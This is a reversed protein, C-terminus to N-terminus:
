FKLNLRELRNIVENLVDINVVMSLRIFGDGNTGFMAGPAVVIHAENLLLEAFETSSYGIAVKAWIYFTGGPKSIMWKLRKKCNEIFFDIRSEYLDALDRVYQQPSDLAVKAAYQIGGFIGMFAHDQFLNISSILKRNGVAFAVRWGAMNYNKSLTSIEIACARASDIQMISPARYGNATIGSYAFDNLIITDNVIANSVANEFFPLNAVAGTPNNPYNLYIIKADLLKKKLSPDFIPLYNNDCTLNFFDPVAGSLHVGSLYDTYGPNPLLVRDGPNLLSQTIAYLGTKAGHFIVIEDKDLHVNYEQAYFKSISQKLFDHGRFPPYKHYEPNSASNILSTVIHDPTPLDPNGQGLNIVKKGSTSLERAKDVLLSFKQEPLSHIRESGNYNM